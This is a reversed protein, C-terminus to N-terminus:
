IQTAIERVVITHGGIFDQQKTNAIHYSLLITLHHQQKDSHTSAPNISICKLILQIFVLCYWVFRLVTDEYYWYLLSVRSLTLWSYLPSTTQQQTNICTWHIYVKFHSSYYGFLIVCVKFGYRRIILITFEGTVIDIM